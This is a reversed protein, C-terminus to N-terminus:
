KVASPEVKVSTQDAALPEPRDLERWIGGRAPQLTMVLYGIGVAILTPRLGWHEVSFGAILSGLPMGAWCGANILGFARARMNPPIRELQVAGLIPNVAGACFGALAKIVLLAGFPLGAALALYTPGGALTFAVIMTVRRPLRHGIVGFLLSGVFAGGGTVGVMLGLAVAGGLERQAYVPLLVTSNAADFLNTIVVIAVIARMLRDQLVFAFGARLGKWYGEPEPVDEDVVARGAVRVLRAVLLASILFSASDVFMAQLGGVSVVLVGAVPAGILRAGRECAEMWGVARELPVGAREAVEPLISRRATQGPADLLTASFIIAFVAWLPIGTTVHLTPVLVILSGGALDTLVSARRYGLRDVVTGGFLDGLVIPLTAVVGAFGTASASGTRGLVYLPLAIITIMNGTLSVTHALYLAYLSSPRRTM